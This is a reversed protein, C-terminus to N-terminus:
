GSHAFFFVKLTVTGDAGATWFNQRYATSFMPLNKAVALNAASAVQIGDGGSSPSWGFAEVLGARSNTLGEHQLMGKLESALSLDAASGGNSGVIGPQPVSVIFVVPRLILVPQRTPPKTAPHTPTPTPTPTPAPPKPPASVTTTSAFATIFLVLLLDAFLWGVLGTMNQPLHQRLRSDRRM